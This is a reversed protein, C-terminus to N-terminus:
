RVKRRVISGSTLWLSAYQDVFKRAPLHRDAQVYDEDNNKLIYQKADEYADSLRARVTLVQEQTKERSDATTIYVYM